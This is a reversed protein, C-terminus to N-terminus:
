EMTQTSWPHRVITAECELLRLEANWDMLAICLGHLDPHGTRLRSEVDAIERRCREIEVQM